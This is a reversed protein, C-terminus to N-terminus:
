APQHMGSRSKSTADTITRSFKQTGAASSAQNRQRDYPGALDLRSLFIGYGDAGTFPNWAWELAYTRDGLAVPRLSSASARPPSSELARQLALAANARASALDVGVPANVANPDLFGLRPGNLGPLGSLSQVSTAPQPPYTFAALYLLSPLGTNATKVRVPDSAGENGGADTAVAYLELEALNPVGATNWPIVFPKSIASGVQVGRATSGRARAYVQVKAVGTDDVANIQVPTTSSVSADSAPSTIAAQPKNPDGADPCATLLFPLLLPLPVRPSHM